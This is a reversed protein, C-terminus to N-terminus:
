YPDVDFQLMIPKYKALRSFSGCVEMLRNKVSSSSTDRRFKVIIQKIYMNKIRSVMPYEPGLVEDGFIKRISLALEAAGKNLLHEDRHKLRILILRYYPPYHYQQRLELQEQAMKEYDNIIVHRLLPHGPQYTQILVKGRNHKRGARGSVQAMLQYSREYARFDPYSLMNDANLIGVIRVKEFDLGKTVMQTGALIDIEGRGFSELIQQFAFRSRTTDLDLRAIRSKPLLLVLEEEVKETGFGHMRIATSHCSPCEHPVAMGYGCYHCRLINQKKHYILSVDCHRCEPIWNCQDCELRLSFGRRNQFLISQAHDALASEMEDMLVKSFHARITKRKKEERMNVIQVEPLQMGGYRETMQVLGYKSTKCNYWSELSPTASGLLVKCGMMRGLVIAADRAHYRPSPDFQKFSQDHEEDVIILGLRSFPLFLASRPGLIINHSDNSTGNFALLKNWVEVREHENYRSHYVGIKNGFYKKLRNITQTTLAIEPLLYLVQKHQEIVQQMLKIYLETKGSSTIGHLLVVEKSKFQDEIQDLAIVQHETLDIDGPHSDAIYDPLRSVTKDKIRFIGKEVMSNLQAHSGGSKELLRKRSVLDKSQKGSALIYTMLIELQKYARKGLSDMLERMQDDDRYKPELSVFTERKPKFRENLEEEMAIIKKEIMTKILPIVKQFGVIQSVESVSLRSSISLAETILFEHESLIQRDQVFGSSLVIKSESALRLGSPLAAQMVEGPFCMYYAAIWEWFRFQEEQIVAKDDLIALVYKPIFGKPVESHVRRILGAYIRRRGFQVVARKGSVADDNMSLPIRYTFLGPVALPIIIDAFLTIREQHNM